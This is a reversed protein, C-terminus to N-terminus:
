STAVTRESHTVVSKQALCSIVVMIFDLYVCTISKLLLILLFIHFLFSIHANSVKDFHQPPLLVNKTPSNEMEIYVSDKSHGDTPSRIQPSPVLQSPITPFNIISSSENTKRLMFNNNQLIKRQYTQVAHLRREKDRLLNM